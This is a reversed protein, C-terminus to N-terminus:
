VKAGFGYIVPKDSREAMEAPGDEDVRFAFRCFGSVVRCGQEFDRAQYATPAERILRRKGPFLGDLFTQAISAAETVTKATSKVTVHFWGGDGGSIVCFVLPENSRTPTSRVM